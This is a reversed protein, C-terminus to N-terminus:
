SCAGCMVYTERSAEVDPRGNGCAPSTPAVWMSDLVLLDACVVAAGVGMPERAM